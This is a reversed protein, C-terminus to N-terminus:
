EQLYKNLMFLIKEQNQKHALICFNNNKSLFDAFISYKKIKKSLKALKKMNKTNISVNSFITYCATDWVSQGLLKSKLIESEIYLKEFLVLYSNSTKIIKKIEGYDSMELITQKTLSSFKLVIVNNVCIYLNPLVYEASTLITGFSDSFTNKVILVTKSDKLMKLATKHVVENGADAMGYATKYSVIPLSKANLFKRPNKDFVGDVDTYNQYIEACLVRSLVAGTIDSGGRSFVKIEGKINGGYFGGIVYVKSLNLKKLRRKTQFFNVEDNKGFIIYESADLFECNLYKAYILASFYEGRSVIYEKSATQSKLRSLFDQSIKEFSLDINLLRAMDDYRKIIQRALSEFDQGTIYNHYLRYLMDTIKEDYDASKGLASVVVFRINPNSKIIKKINKASLVSAVSSGGFKAIIM